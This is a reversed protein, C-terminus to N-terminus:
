LEGLSIEGHTTRAVIKPGGGSVRGEARKDKLTGVFGHGSSIDIESASFDVDAAAGAPAVLDIDGHSNSFEGGNLKAFTIEIDSHSGSVRAFGEARDIEIDGHQAAVDFDAATLSALFIDGHASQIKVKESMIRQVDLDGHALDAELSSGTLSAAALDGHAIRFDIRGDIRDVEVDGHAVSVSADFREPITVLVDIDGGGRNWSGSPNTTISVSRGDKEVSFNLHEFFRRARDGSVTVQVSAQGASGTRISVDSHGVDIRLNDGDSVKFKEDIVVENLTEDGSSSFHVPLVSGHFPLTVDSMKVVALLLLVAAAVINLRNCMVTKSIPHCPSM